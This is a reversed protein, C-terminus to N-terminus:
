KKQASFQLFRKSAFGAFYTGLATAACSICPLCTACHVQLDVFKRACGVPGDNEYDRSFRGGAFDSPRHELRQAALSPCRSGKSFRSGTGVQNPSATLPTAACHRAPIRRADIEPGAGRWRGENVETRTAAVVPM